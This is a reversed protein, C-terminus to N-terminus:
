KKYEEMFIIDELEKKAPITMEEPYGAPILAVAQWLGMIVADGGIVTIRDGGAVAGTLSAATTAHVTQNLM